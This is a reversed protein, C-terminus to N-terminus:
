VEVALLPYFGLMDPDGVIGDARMRDLVERAKALGLQALEDPKDLTAGASRRVAVILRSYEPDAGDGAAVPLAAGTLLQGCANRLQMARDEAVIKMSLALSIAGNIHACNADRTHPHKTTEIALRNAMRLIVREAEASVNAMATKGIQRSRIAGRNATADTHM